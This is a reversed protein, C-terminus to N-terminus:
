RSRRSGAPAASTSRSTSCGRACWRPRTSTPSRGARRARPRASAARRRSTTSRSWSATSRTSSTTATSATTTSSSRCRPSRREVVTARDSTPLGWARLAEYAESQRAPEHATGRRRHRARRAAPRRPARARADLEGELRAVRRPDRPACRRSSPRAATSASACRAPRRRQAPQRLALLGQATVEANLADFAATPFYVEGRVEVLGPVPHGRPATLSKPIAPIFRANYTVDEGVRGDGRTALVRLRGREYVIDVALGDVKLECLLARCRASTRRSAHRGPRSSTPASPTTSASCASCTSSRPSCRRAGRRRGDADPLRGVSLEPHEAELAELERYLADYEADSLTPATTSTTAGRADEVQEVLERWRAAPDATAEAVEASRTRSLCPTTRACRGAPVACSGHPGRARVAPACRGPRLHALGAVQAALTRRLSASATDSHADRGSALAWRRRRRRTALGTGPVVGAVLLQGAEILEGLEDDDRQDHLLLDVSLADAGARRLLELPPARRLLAARGRRRRTSARRRGSGAGGRRGAADVAHYRGRGSATPLSGELVAPLAPEDVM